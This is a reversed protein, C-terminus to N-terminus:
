QTGPVTRSMDIFLVSLYGLSLVEVMRLSGSPSQFSTVFRGQQFEASLGCAMERITVGNGYSLSAFPCTFSVSASLDPSERVIGCHGQLSPLVPGRFGYRPSDLHGM